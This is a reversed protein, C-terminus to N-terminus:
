CIASNHVSSFQPCKTPQDLKLQIVRDPEDVIYLKHSIEQSIKPQGEEQFDFKNDIQHVNPKCLEYFLDTTM